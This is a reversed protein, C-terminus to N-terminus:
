AVIHMKLAERAIEGIVGNGALAWKETVTRENVAQRLVGSAAWYEMLGRAEAKTLGKLPMLDVKKLSEMVRWDTEVWPSPLTVEKGAAKEQIQQIALNMSETKPINGSTTAAVVAGGNPLSKAGSIHDVFHKILVLDHAHVHSFDPARYASVTMMHNLGDAALLIPPLGAATIEAWLAQFIPWAAEPDRAGLEALRTLTTNPPVPIPLTHTQKVVHKSLIDNNAKAIQSLLTATYVNQSFQLPTTGALPSYATVATALEQADPISIVIWGKTFATAMAQLLLMSKGTARAGSLIISGTKKAAAAELMKKALTVTEDRVLISPSRFLDWSQNKKFAEVVRLQDIVPGPIAVVKGVMAADVMTEPSLEQLGQVELANTNSLVIRKRMAKREGPAPPRGTKVPAKKKVRLSRAAGKAKMNPAPKAKSNAPARGTAARAAVTSFAALGQANSLAYPSSSSSPRILCKWCNTSAM